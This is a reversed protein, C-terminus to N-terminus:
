APLKGAHTHENDVLIRGTVQRDGSREPVQVADVTHRVFAVAQVQQARVCELDDHGRFPELVTGPELQEALNGLLPGRHQADERCISLPQLQQAPSQAGELQKLSQGVGDVRLTQNCRESESVGSLVGVSISRVDLV